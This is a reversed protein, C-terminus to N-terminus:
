LSGLLDELSADLVADSSATNEKAADTTAARDVGFASEKPMGLISTIPAPLTEVRHAQAAVAATQTATNQATHDGQVAGRDASVAYPTDHSVGANEGGYPMSANMADSHAAEQQMRDLESAEVKMPVDLFSDLGQEIRQFMTAGRVMMNHVFRAVEDEEYASWNLAGNQASRQALVMRGQGSAPSNIHGDYTILHVQGPEPEGLGLAEASTSLRELRELSARNVSLSVLEENLRQREKNLYNTMYDHHRMKINLWADMYLPSFAIFVVLIWRKWGRLARRQMRKTVQPM